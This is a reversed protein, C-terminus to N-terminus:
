RYKIEWVTKCTPELFLDDVGIFTFQNIHSLTFNWSAKTNLLSKYVYEACYMKDNTALDFNMDFIIQHAYFKTAAAVWKKIFTDSQEYRFIGLQNNEEPNAFVTFYTRLIKQNPNWEGGLSHYVFVSDNEINAIGCHSYTKNRRNLSKLSQSTFDNGTRTILDGPQIIKEASDILIYAQQLIIREALSDAKTKILPPLKKDSQCQPLGLAMLFILILLFGKPLHTYSIPASLKKKM